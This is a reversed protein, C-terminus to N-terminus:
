VNNNTPHYWCKESVHLRCSLHCNRDLHYCEMLSYEKRGWVTVTEINQAHSLGL